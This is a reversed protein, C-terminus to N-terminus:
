VIIKLIFYLPLYLRYNLCYWMAGDLRNDKYIRGLRRWSLEEYFAKQKRFSRLIKLKQLFTLDCVKRDIYRFIEYLYESQINEWYNPISEGVKYKDVLKKETKCCYLMTNIFNKNYKGTTSHSYRMIWYYYIKPNLVVCNCHDYVMLNFYRDEASFRMREDFRIHHGEIFDRRYLGAWVGTFTAKIQNYNKWIDVDRLVAFHFPPNTTSDRKGDDDLRIRLRKYRVVDAQYKVALNYNDKLLDPLYKDDNDCFALYDGQAAELGANRASCIGGNKKHIVRVREDERAFRDCIAGSKDTSGDDVLILEFDLFSQALVSEVAGELYKESNYVPMIVSIRAM